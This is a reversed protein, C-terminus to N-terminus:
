DTDTNKGIAGVVDHMFKPGGDPWAAERGSFDVLEVPQKALREYLNDDGYFPLFVMHQGYVMAFSRFVEPETILVLKREAPTPRMLRFAPADGTDPDQIHERVVNLEPRLAFRYGFASFHALYATRLWGAAARKESFPEFGITIRFDRWGDPESARHFDAMVAERTPPHSARPVGIAKMHGDARTLRIPVAGSSTKLTAKLERVNGAAFDLLDAERRMHIDVNRGAESNCEKCTLALRHGGVNEPPVHDRTLRGDRLADDGFATLCLPCVYFPEQSITRAAEPFSRRFAEYGQTFWAASRFGDAVRRAADSSPNASNSM